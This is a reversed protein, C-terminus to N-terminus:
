SNIPPRRISKERSVDDSLNGTQLVTPSEYTNQSLFKGSSTRMEQSQSNTVAGSLM